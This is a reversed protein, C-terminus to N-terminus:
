TTKRKKIKYFIWGAAALIMITGLARFTGKARELLGPDRTEKRSERIASVKKGTTANETASLEGAASELSGELGTESAGELRLQRFRIGPPEAM